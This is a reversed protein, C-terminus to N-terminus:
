FYYRILARSKLNDAYKARMENKAKRDLQRRIEESAKEFAIREEPVISALRIFYYGEPTKVPGVIRGAEINKLAAAFEPRLKDQDM